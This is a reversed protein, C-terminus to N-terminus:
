SWAQQRPSCSCFLSPAVTTVGISGGTLKIGVLVAIVVVAAAAYKTIRSRMIIRWTGVSVSAKNRANLEEQTRLADPLVKGRMETRPEIRTEVILKEIDKPSKM